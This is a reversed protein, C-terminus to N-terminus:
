KCKLPINVIYCNGEKATDLVYEARFDYAAAISIMGLYVQKIVVSNVCISLLFSSTSTIRPM